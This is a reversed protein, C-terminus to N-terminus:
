KVMVSTTWQDIQAREFKLIDGERVCPIKNNRVLDIIVEEDLELYGALEKINLWDNVEAVSMHCTGQFVAGEVINLKPTYIDGELVATPMLTLLKTVRVAGKVYGAIIVNDGNIDAEVKARGGVNLTGKIDLSGSFIGNIKLDVPDKFSLSGHMEANIEIGRATSAEAPKVIRKDGFAM